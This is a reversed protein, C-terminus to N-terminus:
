DRRSYKDIFDNVADEFDLTKLMHRVTPHWVGVHPPYTMYDGFINSLHKRTRNPASFEYKEFKVKRLPFFTDFSYVPHNQFPVAPSLYLSPKESYPLPAKGKLLRESIMKEIEQESYNCHPYVEVIKKKIAFLEREVKPIDEQAVAESHVIYPIVDLNLPTGKVGIQLFSRYQFFFGEKEPFLTPLMEIFRDYDSKPMCIDLDDDWPIFGEHRVAGLLTGYDLWYQLQHEECKRAYYDLLTLNGEQLLRLKGTAKPVQNVPHNFIILDRLEKLQAQVSNDKKKRRWATVAKVRKRLPYPLMRTVIYKLTSFSIM